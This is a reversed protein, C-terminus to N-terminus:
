FLACRKPATSTQIQRLIEVLLLLTHTLASCGGFVTDARINSRHMFHVLTKHTLHELCNTCHYVAALLAIHARVEITVLADHAPDYLLSLVKGHRTPWSTWHPWRRDEMPVLEVTASRANSLNAHCLEGNSMALAVNGSAMACAEVVHCSSSNRNLFVGGGDEKTKGELLSESAADRRPVGRSAGPALGPLAVLDAADFM